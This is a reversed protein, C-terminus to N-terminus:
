IVDAFICVPAPAARPPFPPVPAPAAPRTPDAPDTDPSAAFSCSLSFIRSFNRWLWFYPVYYFTRLAYLSAPHRRRQHLLFLFCDRRLPGLLHLLPLNTITHAHIHVPVKDKLTSLDLASPFLINSSEASQKAEAGLESATWKISVVRGVTRQDYM